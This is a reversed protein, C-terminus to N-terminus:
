AQDRLVTLGSAIALEMLKPAPYGVLLDVLPLYRQSRSDAHAERDVRRSEDNRLPEKNACKRGRSTVVRKVRATLLRRKEMKLCSSPCGGMEAIITESQFRPDAIALKPHSRSDPPRAQSAQSNTCMRFSIPKRLRSTTIVCHAQDYAVQCRFTRSIVPCSHSSADVASMRTPQRAEAIPTEESTRGPRPPYIQWTGARSGARPSSDARLPM